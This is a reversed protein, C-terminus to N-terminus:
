TFLKSHDFISEKESSLYVIAEDKKDDKKILSFNNRFEIVSKKTWNNIDLIYNAQEVNLFKNILM